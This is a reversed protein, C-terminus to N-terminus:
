KKQIVKILNSWILSKKNEQPSNNQRNTLLKSSTFSSEITNEGISRVSKETNTAKDCFTIKETNIAKDSFSKEVDFLKNDIIKNNFDFEKEEQLEQLRIANTENCNREYENTLWVNKVTVDDAIKQSKKKETKPHNHAVVGPAIYNDTIYIIM